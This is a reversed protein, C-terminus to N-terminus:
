VLMRLARQEVGPFEDHRDAIPEVGQGPAGSRTPPAGGLSGRSM